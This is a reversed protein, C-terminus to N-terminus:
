NTESASGKGYSMSPLKCNFVDLLSTFLPPLKIKKIEGCAPLWFMNVEPVHKTSRAIFIYWDYGRLHCKSSRFMDSYCMALLPTNTDTKKLFLFLITAQFALQFSVKGYISIYITNRVCAIFISIQVLYHCALIWQPNSFASIRADSKMWSRDALDTLVIM